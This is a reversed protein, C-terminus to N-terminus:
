FWGLSSAPGNGGFFLVLTGPQFKLFLLANGQNRPPPQQLTIITLRLLFHLYCPFGVFAFVNQRTEILELQERPNVTEDLRIEGTSLPPLVPAPPPALPTTKFGSGVEEM